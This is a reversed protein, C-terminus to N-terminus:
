QSQGPRKGSVEKEIWNLIQSAKDRGGLGFALGGALAFMVILGTFLIEILTPAIGLQVLMAMFAFTYIAWKALVSLFGVSGKPMTTAGLGSNVFNHVLRGVILGIALIAIAVIVNPIYLAVKELFSTLQPFNLIDVVAIFTAIVLFWKVVQGILSEFTFHFGMGGLEQQLGIKEAVKDVKTYGVLKKAFRGLMNALLLGILLVIIAGIVQPLYSLMIQWVSGVSGVFTGGWTNLNGM